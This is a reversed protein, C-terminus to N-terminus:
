PVIAIFNFDSDVLTGLSATFMSIQVSSASPTSGDKIKGVFGGASTGATVIVTPASPLFNAEFTVTYQGTSQRSPVFRIGSITTGLSSVRGAIIKDTSLRELRAIRDALDLRKGANRTEPDSAPPPLKRYSSM